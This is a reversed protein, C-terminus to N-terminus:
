QCKGYKVGWWVVIGNHIYNAGFNSTARGMGFDM